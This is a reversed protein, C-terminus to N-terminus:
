QGALEKILWEADDEYEIMDQIEIPSNIKLKFLPENGIKGFSISKKSQRATVDKKIVYGEPFFIIQAQQESTLEQQAFIDLNRWARAVQTTTLKIM